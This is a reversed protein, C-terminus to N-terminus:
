GRGAKLDDVYADIEAKISDLVAVEEDTPEVGPGVSDMMTNFLSIAGAYFARRSETFQVNPADVPIIKIAYERWAKDLLKQTM